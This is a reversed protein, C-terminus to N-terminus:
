TTTEQDLLWQEIADRRFRVTRGIRISPITGCRAHRYVWERHVGGILEAVEDANMYPKMQPGPAIHM